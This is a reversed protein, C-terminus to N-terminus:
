NTRIAHAEESLEDLVNIPVNDSQILDNKEYPDNILDYLEQRGSDSEILKYLGNSIAWEEIDEDNRRESFAFARPGDNSESLLDVLSFSDHISDANVGAISAITSFLDITNIM